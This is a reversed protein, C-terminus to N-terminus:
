HKNRARIEWIVKGEVLKAPVWGMEETSIGAPNCGTLLIDGQENIEIIKKILRPYTPHQCVVVDGVSLRKVRRYILVFDGDSLYPEM